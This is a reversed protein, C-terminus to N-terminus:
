NWKGLINKLLVHWYIQNHLHRSASRNSIFNAYYCKERWKRKKLLFEPARSQHSQSISPPINFENKPRWMIVETLPRAAYAVFTVRTNQNAFPHTVAIQIHRTFGLPQLKCNFSRLPNSTAQIVITMQFLFVRPLVWINFFDSTGLYWPCAQIQPGRSTYSAVM